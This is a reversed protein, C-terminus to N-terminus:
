RSYTTGEPGDKITIGLESLRDRIRDSEAFNKAARFSKRMELLLEILSDEVNAGSSDGEISLGLIDETFATVIRYLAALRKEDPNGSSLEKNSLKLIEYLTAIAKPTNFDDNMDNIFQKELKEIDEFQSSDAAQLNKAAKKLAFVSNKLREFGQGSAELSQETFDLPKHYHAQLIYFRLVMPDLKKFLDKLIIFNGLSKGMKTGDVTLINNHIFYKTFIEGTLTESQAIECDHHPFINDLGGGHIDLTKGIYKMGMASCEIHWGPYGVSWPSDWKMIHEPEAKKWLAFDEPNRKDAAVEVREGERTEGLKRGSLRGYNKFSRVNFYVNGEDTVYAHGKEILRKTLDIMEPIHGTARSSIDPRLINLRDMDQFYSVEYKYAIEAPELKETKAQELIKDDGEDVNDTLHGVDTINQVYRVKYGLYKLYRFIIDFTIYSRAHGLHSHGYVTPGCVYMGVYPPNIPAFREKKRTLSNYVQLGM